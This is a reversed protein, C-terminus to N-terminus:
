FAEILKVTLASKDSNYGGAKYQIRNSTIGKSIIYNAAKKARELSLLKNDKKSQDINTFGIIEIAINPNVKLLGTLNNLESITPEKLESSNKDYEVGFLEMQKNHNFEELVIQEYKDSFYEYNTLVKTFYGDKNIIIDYSKSPDIEKIFDGYEDSECFSNIKYTQNIIEISTNEISRGSHQDIINGKFEVWPTKEMVINLQNNTKKSNAFYLIRKTKYGPKSVILSYNKGDFIDLNFLGKNKTYSIKEKSLNDMLVVQVSDLSFKTKAETIRGKLTIIKDKNAEFSFMDDNGRRNSSFYGIEKNKAILFGFDDKESNFPPGLNVPYTWQNQEFTTKFIDLGGFGIHGNSSFYLYNDAAIFPFMENGATNVTPGLNIPKSWAFGQKRCLYIDTGGYGGDMNSIFYLFRGDPSISPHGISYNKGSFLFLEPKDWSKGNFRSTYINLESKGELNLNGKNRTFYIFKENPSFCAPGEHYKSNFLNNFPKPSLFKSGSKEAYYLDLYYEGTRGDTARSTKNPRGSVFLIGNKYLASVFDSQATNIGLPTVTYLQKDELENILNCSLILNTINKHDPYFKAYKKYWNIAKIYNRTRKLLEAYQLYDEPIVENSAVINEMLYLAKNDKQTQTYCYALKRKIKIDESNLLYKEYYYQADSYEENEFLRNGKVLQNNQASLSISGTIILLLAFIIRFVQKSNM